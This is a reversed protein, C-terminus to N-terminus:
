FIYRMKWLTFFMEGGIINKIVNISKNNDDFCM